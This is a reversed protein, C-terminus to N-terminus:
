WVRRSGGIDEGRRPNNMFFQRHPCLDEDIAHGVNGGGGGRRQGSQSDGLGLLPARCIRIRSVRERLDFLIQGPPSMGKRGHRARRCVQRAQDERANGDAQSFDEGM